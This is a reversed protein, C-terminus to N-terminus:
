TLGGSFGYFLGQPDHQQRLSQLRRWNAPAFSAEARGPDDVIDTEGLYHGATFRKFISMAARHWAINAADGEPREWATWLGGYTRAAMSFAANTGPPLGDTWRPYIAFLLVTKASAKMFHARTATLMEVTPRRSWFTEAQYRHNEPWLSGATDFLSEFPTPENATRALCEVPCTDLPALAMAADEPSSAFVTGAVMCVKGGSSACRAALAPPASVLFVTLEVYSPLRDTVGGLWAGVEGVRELPYYSVSSRIAPPLPSLRLHYRTAVAPLGAGGGRAAWFLDANEQESARVLQGQATVLDAAEVNMCAPGWHHSNWGIGGSLLFGSAKVTPCHGVPFALGHASLQRMLDRNSISPQIAATRAPADITVETLRSLDILMGGRRLALGCWSHGGGRAVVQLGQERACRVAEVVDPEHKARVIADPRRDPRVQNWLMEARIAEYHPDGSGIVEGEIRRRIAVIDV